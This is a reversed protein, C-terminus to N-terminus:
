LSYTVSLKYDCLNSRQLTYFVQITAISRLIPNQLTSILLHLDDKTQAKLKDDNAAEVTGQIQELVQLATSIDSFSLSYSYLECEVYVQGIYDIATLCPPAHRVCDNIVGM